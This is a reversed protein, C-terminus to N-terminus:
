GNVITRVVANSIISHGGMVQAFKHGSLKSCYTKAAQYNTNAVLILPGGAQYAVAGGSLGDPFDGGSALTVINNDEAFFEEAVAVSTKYRNAGALRKYYAPADKMSKLVSNMVNDSVVATGGVVYVKNASFTSLFSKQEATLKDGVLMIAKGTASVSLSDAYGSSACVVLSDIVRVDGMTEKIIEINTSYRNAGALRKVKHNAKELSKKFKDSVVSTGGLIYVTGDSALNEDIFTKIKGETGPSVLVIPAATYASLFSGTLADPFNEGSAVIVNELGTENPHDFFYRFVKAATVSTDYRTAGFYRIVPLMGDLAVDSMNYFSTKGDKFRDADILAMYAQETAMQNYTKNNSYGFSGDALAFKNLGELVSAKGATASVSPDKGVAAMAMAVCATSNANATGWSTYTGDANRQAEFYAMAKDIVASVNDRTKYPALAIVAMATLDIDPETAGYGYDWLGHDANVSTMIYEVYKNVETTYGKSYKSNSNIALLAYIAGNVGQATAKQVAACKYIVDFEGAGREASYGGATLTLAVKANNTYNSSGTEMSGQRGAVEDALSDWYDNSVTQGDRALAMAFWESGYKNVMNKKVFARTKELQAKVEEPTVSTPGASIIRVAYLDTSAWNDDYPTQVFVYEPFAGDYQNVVAKTAGVKGNDAYDGDPSCSGKYQDGSKSADGYQYAICESDGFDLTISETGESVKITYLDITIDNDSWDKYTLGGAAVSEVTAGTFPAKIAAWGEAAAMPLTAVVLMIAMMFSALRRRM